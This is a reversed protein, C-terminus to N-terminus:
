PVLRSALEQGVVVVVDAGGIQEETYGDLPSTAEVQLDEAVAEAARQNGETYQITTTQLDTIGNPEDVVFDPLVNWGEVELVPTVGEGAAGTIGSANFVAVDFNATEVPAPDDPVQGPDAPATTTATTDGGTTLAPPDGAARAGPDGNDRLLFFWGAAGALGVAVVVGAGILGTRLFGPALRRGSSSIDARAQLQRVRELSAEVAASGNQALREEIRRIARGHRISQVILGVALFLALIAASPAALEVWEM